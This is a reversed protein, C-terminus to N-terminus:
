VDTGDLPVPGRARWGGRAGHPSADAPSETSSSGRRSNCGSKWRLRRQYCWPRESAAPMRRTSLMSASEASSPEDFPRARSCSGPRGRMRSSCSSSASPIRGKEETRNMDDCEGRPRRSIRDPGLVIAGPGAVVAGLAGDLADEELGERGGRLPAEALLSAVEGARVPALAHRRGRRIPPIGGDVVGKRCGHAHAAGRLALVSVRGPRRPRPHVVRLGRLVPRRPIRQRGRIINVPRMLIDPLTSAGLGILRLHLLCRPHQVIALPPHTRTWEDLMGPLQFNRVPFRM